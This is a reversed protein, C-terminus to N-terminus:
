IGGEFLREFLRELDKQKALIVKGGKCYMERMSLYRIITAFFADLGLTIDQESLKEKLGKSIALFFTNRLMAELAIVKLKIDEALFPLEKYMMSLFNEEESLTFLYSQLLEKLSANTPIGVEIQRTIRKIEDELVTNILGERNGFHLFISGHAIGCAKAIHATTLNMMGQESMLRKTQTLILERTNAKAEQRKNIIVM